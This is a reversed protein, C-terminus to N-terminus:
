FMYRLSLLMAWTSVTSALTSYTCSNENYTYTGNKYTLIEQNNLTKYNGWKPSILNLANKIDLGAKFAHKRGNSQNISFEQEIRLDLQNHWPMIQSGREAYQGRHSALYKDSNIKNNFATKNEESVFPMTKLENETPIYVTNYAGGEGTLCSNFTYTWRTYSYQTGVYGINSGEYFASLTTAFNKGEPIRWSVSALVRNPTVYSSHGLEPCNSGNKGYTNTSFVSTVQDGLGDNLGKSGSRTYAVMAFVNDSFNKQLKATISYYYGNLDSNHIWYPNINKGASNKVNPDNSFVLRSEPEGPLQNAKNVMGEKTVVVSHLDKNYIGEVSAVIDGPLLIDAALSSKWTTPLKLNKDLITTATPATLEQQKFTGGYVMSLIDSIYGDKGATEPFRLNPNVGNGSWIIQSQMVNSNGVSSVLWVMPLSGTFIGTGGRLVLTRNGTVDWNFGLRPSVTLYATPVDSTKWGTTNAFIRTFDKNENFEMSPYFPLEFRVGATLKFRESFKIEDQLYASVKCNTLYPFQQELNDNNGHTIAFAAPAKDNNVFDKWTEYLFYGAGMQMYGNKANTYEFQLGALFSNKNVRYSFEDGVNWTIVDRLNGYTFPDIGFTTYVARTGDAAPELIDVTPFLSGNYSRPEYQHSYTARLINSGAGDAFHTTLEGAVSTFNQEQYYNANKFYLAYNSVRGYSNRNYLATSGFPSVSSSPSTMYKNSTRSFRINFHNNENINWDIRALVKWDPTNFSYGQYEGPDYDYKDKLYKAINDLDSAVPRNYQTSGGWEDTASTRALRRQGPNNDIDYEFNAFFFLKNKVIPGGVSIGSTNQLKSSLTLTNGENGYKVGQLKDSTYYDYVAVKFENTGSKTVANIAGGVFGSQRVDYPTLSITMQELADLSIPTGGAPLNSGIGFMNNFAAGDVTVYSQRYNGGGVAFGNSTVAAQPTLRMMDNMSRNVTPLTSMMKSSVSTVSGSRSSSMNTTTAEAVIIVEDLNTAQEELDFDLEKEDSLDLTTEELVLTKYGIMQVEITYPGPRLNVIKYQGNKDTVAYYQASTNSIAKVVAGAVTGDKDYVTGSIASTTVQGYSVLSILILSFVLFIKKFVRM